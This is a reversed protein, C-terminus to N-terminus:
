TRGHRAVSGEPIAIRVRPVGEKLGPAVFTIVDGDLLAATEVPEGNVWTGDRSGNDIMSIGDIDWTVKVLALEINPHDVRFNALRGSGVIMSSGESLELSAGDLPGGEIVLTPVTPADAM